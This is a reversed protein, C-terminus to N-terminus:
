AAYRNNRFIIDLSEGRTVRLAEKAQSIRTANMFDKFYARVRAEFEETWKESKALGALQHDIQRKAVVMAHTKLWDLGATAVSGILTATRNDMRPAPVQLIEKGKTVANDAPKVRIFFDVLALVSVTQQATDAAYDAEWRKFWVVVDGEVLLGNKTISSSRVPQANEVLMFANSHEPITMGRTTEALATLMAEAKKIRNNSSMLYEAFAARVDEKEEASYAASQQLSSKKAVYQKSEKLSKKLRLQADYAIRIILAATTTMM